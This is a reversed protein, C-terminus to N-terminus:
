AAAVPEFLADAGSTHRRDIPREVLRELAPDRDLDEVLRHLVVGHLELSEPALRARDRPERVRVDHGHDVGPLVVAVREDHELVDVAVRQLRQDLADTRQGHDLGHRVRDLDTAPQDRRVALAEYM